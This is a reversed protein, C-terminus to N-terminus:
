GCPQGALRHPARMGVLTLASAASASQHRGLLRLLPPLKSAAGSGDFVVRWVGRGPDTCPSDFRVIGELAGPADATFTVRAECLNGARTERLQWSGPIGLVSIDAANAAWSASWGVGRDTSRGHRRVSGVGAMQGVRGVM